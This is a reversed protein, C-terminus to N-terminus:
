RWKLLTWFDRASHEVYRYSTFFYGDDGWAKGWSNKFELMETEDDYGVILVAHGGMASGSPDPVLGRTWVIPLEWNSYITVGCVVPLGMAISIKIEQLSHLAMYAYVTHLRSGDDPVPQKKFNDWGYPFDSEKPVGYKNLVKVGNRIYAGEDSEFTGEMLREMNYIFQPSLLDLTVEKGGTKQDVRELYERCSCIAYGTCSGMDGQDRVESQMERLSKKVPIKKSQRIFMPYARLKFDRADPLSPKWGMRKKLADRDFM